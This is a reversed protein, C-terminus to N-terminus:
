PPPDLRKGRHTLLVCCCHTLYLVCCITLKPPRRRKACTGFKQGKTVPLAQHLTRDDQVDPQENLVSPWLVARGKKPMVTFDPNSPDIHPFNTGGGEEVDSLYIYFTLIRPGVPQDVQAPIFDHSHFLPSFASDESLFSACPVTCKSYM